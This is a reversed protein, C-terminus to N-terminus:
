RLETGEPGLVAWLVAMTRSLHDGLDGPIMRKM